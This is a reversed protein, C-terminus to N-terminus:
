PKLKTYSGIVTARTASVQRISKGGTMQKVYQGIWNNVIWQCLGVCLHDYRSRLQPDREIAVVVDEIIDEGYPKQIPQLADKVLINVGQTKLPM